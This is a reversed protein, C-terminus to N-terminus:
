GQSDVFLGSSKVNMLTRRIMDGANEVVPNDHGSYITRVERRILNELAQIFEISYSGGPTGVRLPTDGSFLTKDEKCYLCISDSSHGPTHIVEFDRDGMRIIQGDKLTEDVGEFQKFAYVKANYLSRIEKIGGAHDFHEHTIIIQEVPKKGVGTYIKSIAQIISGDTGVDVLTNVDKLTSWTGLILYSNCTYKTRNKKLCMVKM